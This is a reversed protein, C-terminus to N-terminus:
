VNIVKVPLDKLFNEMLGVQFKMGNQFATNINIHPLSMGKCIPFQDRQFIKPLIGAQRKFLSSVIGKIKCFLDKAGIFVFTKDLGIVTGSKQVQHYTKIAVGQAGSNDALFQVARIVTSHFQIRILDHGDTIKGSLASRDTLQSLFIQLLDCFILIFCQSLYTLGYIM